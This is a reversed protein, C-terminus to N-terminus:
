QSDRPKGTGARSRYYLVIGMIGLFYGIGGIIETAGPRRDSMEALRDLVPTMREELKEDVAEAVLAKLRAEDIVAPSTRAPESDPGAPATTGLDAPQDTSDPAPGASLGKPLDKAPLVYEARHGEGADLVIKLDARVTPRFAFRGQEDTKGEAVTRGDPLYVRVDCNQAKAGRGVSGHCVVKDGSAIAWVRVRHAWAASAGFMLLTLILAPKLRDRL